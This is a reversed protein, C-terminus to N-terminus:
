SELNGSVVNAERYYYKLLGGLRRRVRISLRSVESEEAVFHGAPSWDSPKRQGIGQHPRENNYFTVYEHVARKLM